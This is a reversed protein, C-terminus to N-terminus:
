STTVGNLAEDVMKEAFEGWEACAEFRSFLRAIAECASCTPGVEGCPTLKKYAQWVFAALVGELAECSASGEKWTRALAACNTAVEVPPAFPKKALHEVLRLCSWVISLVKFAVGPTSQAAILAWFEQLMEALDLETLPRGPQNWVEAFGQQEEEGVIDFPVLVAVYSTWHRRHHGCERPILFSPACSSIPCTESPFLDRPFDTCPFLFSPAVSFALEMETVLRMLARGVDLDEACCGSLDGDSIKRLTRWALQALEFAVPSRAPMGLIWPWVQDSGKAEQVFLHERVLPWPRGLWWVDPHLSLGGFSFLVVAAVLHEWLGLAITESFRLATEVIDMELSSFASEVPICRVSTRLCERAPAWVMQDFHDGMRTLQTQYAQMCVQGRLCVRHLLPRAPYKREFAVLAEPCPIGTVGLQRLMKAMSELSLGGMEPLRARKHRPTNPM